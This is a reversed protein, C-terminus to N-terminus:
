SKGELAKFLISAFLQCALVCEKAAHTTLSSMGAYYIVKEYDPYYHLVVPVLRMISGNGATNSEISGAMPNGTRQFVGLAKAVTKGMGFAYPRCSLYGESAWKWYREMQDQADFGNCEILSEALCLTMSTDDTWEGKSLGFKGGGVMDTMPEFRGRRCFEVTTGVADGCALGLLTSEFKSKM